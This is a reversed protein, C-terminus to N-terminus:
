AAVGYTQEFLAPHLVIVLEDRETRKEARRDRGRLERRDNGKRATLDHSRNRETTSITQKQAM